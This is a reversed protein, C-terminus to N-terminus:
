EGHFLWMPPVPQPELGPGSLRLAPTVGSWVYDKLGPQNLRAPADTRYDLYVIRLPHLGKELAISWTGQAHLRTAPYWENLGVVETRYGYPECRQGLFVSLEYGPDTDPIVSERPAHLTYVGTQPADIFGSYEIAFFKARPAAARGLPPNSDPVVSLDFPALGRKEARPELSDLRLWLRRWDDEYYRATLGPQPRRVATAAIAPVPVSKDFVARSTATAQTGSNHPPNTTVGLRYARAKVIASTKLTVPGTYLTSQPTPEGGDLTYRIQVDPTKTAMTVVIEDIFVNRDPGIVVPTIPRHISAVASREGGDGDCTFEFDPANTALTQGKIVARHCGLAVGSVTGDREVVLLSEGDIEVPGLFLTAAADGPTALYRVRGGGILEAEFGVAGGPGSIQRPQIDTETGAGPPRPQIATVVTSEGFAKWALSVRYQGYPAHGSRQPQPKTAYSLDTTSFSHLSVNAKPVEVGRLVTSSAATTRIRRIAADVEIEKEAFARDSSPELPLHWQQEFAHEGEGRLRDTVIWLRPGRVFHVWRQHRIGRLTQDLPVSGRQMSVPVQPAALTVANTKAYPGDYIGEMLNFRDSAHWRWDAPETWAAVPIMKHGAIMPVRALGAHFDQQLGDVEIPSGMLGYRDFKDEVVLDQGFAALGFFNNNSRSRRGGYAGPHPSCFMAGYGSDREWGERVLNYGGYPFWESHYTPRVGEDGRISRLNEPQSADIIAARIRRNEPDAFAEPAVLFDGVYGPRKDTGRVGIPWSGQPSRLRLQYGIRAAMHERIEQCWDPDDKVERVWPQEEHPPLTGRAEFLAFAQPVGGVYNENYWPCQQNESGDRLNQTVANDEISRRRGLRFVQPAAKFEDFLLALLLYSSGPTWNHTNTRLYIAQYLVLENWYKALVRALTEPPLLEALRTEPIAAVLGGLTRVFDILDAHGRFGTPALCPHPHSATVASNRAWDDMFAVYARLYKEDCTAVFAEAPPM